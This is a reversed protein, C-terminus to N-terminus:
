AKAKGPSKGPDKVESKQLRLANTVVSVSSMAMASSAIMPSLKGMAAWPISVTNYGMAWFLNQKIIRMTRRSLEITEAVKAIDGNVLTIHSAEIAIDTGTGISFGVDAAALAPADNIGDGIMGVRLGQARLEEVVRLKMEPTAHAVVTDIGVEAAIHDATAQADGTVMMSAVNLKHLLSIADKATARARDAIGIVASPTGDVAAVVSTVGTRALADVRAIVSSIDVGEAELFMPNGIVVRRQGVTAKVGHGTVSVFDKAVEAKIGLAQAHDLIAHGFHHESGAEASAILMLTDADSLKGVNDFAVVSPTGETITGTKDFLLIDLKAATELSEGNRIFVGRRAAHGTSAMIATPTALGLACPCAILLVSISNGLATTFPARAALWGVFTVVGVGMVVPVFVSSIKDVMLQVPLKSGQAEDVMRVIGALVTDRGVATAKMHFSGTGNVSGGVIQAGVDKVVPLSEGTIISEDVTSLGSVVVGDTPIKEGPRVVLIDDAVVDDIHVEIEHGDRIVNATPPQLDILKRIADGAKGKAVEELYRGLLVFSIIGAAAEFYLHHRGRVLAAVSYAYAAGAGMAVLSDMNTERQRALKWAKEFFPRGAWVVVPTTLAFELLKLPWSTPMAMGIAMIPVTLAGAIAVRRRAERLREKEREVVMRRQDLTDMSRVQYGVSDAISALDDRGLVGHVSATMSAFNVTANKVRPDRNLKLELLLACSSCTMGEVAVSFNDLVQGDALDCTAAASKGPMKANALNGIVTNLLGYLKDRSMIKPDFWVALSGIPAVARAKRVAPHKHLLIELIYAREPNKHIAPVFVRVRRRIAHVVEFTECLAPSQADM